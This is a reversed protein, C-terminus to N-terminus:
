QLILEPILFLFNLLLMWRPLRPFERRGMAILIFAWLSVLINLPLSIVNGLIILMSVWEGEPPDPYAKIIFTIVFCCNCIFAIRSLLRLAQM